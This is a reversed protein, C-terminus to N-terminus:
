AADFRAIFDRVSTRLNDAERHVTRSLERVRAAEEGAQGIASSMEGMTDAVEGTRTSAQQAHQSIEGTAQGQQDVAEAISGTFGDVDQMTRTIEGIAQVADETSAQIAAIQAGIEETAKSTQTALEKVEAAVVAFGRGAEGARAAEITANLALLNTQEAIAQILSVVEGIKSAGAALRSVTENTRKAHDSARSVVETTSTVQRAIESISSSLEEAAAAVTQVNDSAQRSTATTRESLDGSRASMQELTDVATMLAGAAGDLTDFFGRTTEHFSQATRRELERQEVARRTEQESAEEALQRQRIVGERFRALAESLRGLEDRSRWAPAPVDTDGNAYARAVRDLDRLRVTVSRYVFVTGALFVLVMAAVGGLSVNRAWAAEARLNALSAAISAKLLEEAEDAREILAEFTADFIEDAKSGAGGDVGSVLGAHRERAVEELADIKAAVDRVVDRVGPDSTATFAGESNSGGDLIARAYFRAEDILRWVEDISEGEDGSMIEELLLHARTATLKIEMAADALPAEVEGLRIGNDGVRQTADLAFLSAGVSVVILLAMTAGIKRAVSLNFAGKRM